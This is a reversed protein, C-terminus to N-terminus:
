HQNASRENTFHIHVKKARADLEGSTLLRFPLSDSDGMPEMENMCSYLIQAPKNLSFTAARFPTVGATRMQTTRDINDKKVQLRLSPHIYEEPSSNALIGTDWNPRLGKPLMRRHEERFLALRGAWSYEHQRHRARMGLLLPMVEVLTSTSMHTLKTPEFIRAVDLFEEYDIHEVSEGKAAREWNPLEISRFLARVAYEQMSAAAAPYNGSELRMADVVITDLADGAYYIHAEPRVEDKLALDICMDAAVLASYPTDARLLKAATKEIANYPPVTNGYRAYRVTPDSFPDVDQLNHRRM